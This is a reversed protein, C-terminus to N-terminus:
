LGYRYHYDINKLSPNFIATYITRKRAKSKVDSIFIQRYDTTVIYPTFDTTISTIIIFAVIINTATIFLYM